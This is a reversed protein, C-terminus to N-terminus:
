DENLEVFTKKEAKVIEVSSFKSQENLRPKESTETPAKGSDKSQNKTRDRGGENLCPCNEFNLLNQNERVFMM